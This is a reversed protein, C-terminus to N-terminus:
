DIPNQLTICIMLRTLARVEQTRRLTFIATSQVDEGTLIVDPVGCVLFDKDTTLDEMEFFVEFYFM